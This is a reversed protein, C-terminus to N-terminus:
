RLMDARHLTAITGLHHLPVAPFPDPEDTLIAFGVLVYTWVVVYAYDIVSFFLKM